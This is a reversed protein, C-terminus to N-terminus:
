HESPKWHRHRDEIRDASSKESDKVNKRRSGVAVEIKEYLFMFMKGKKVTCTKLVLIYTSTFAGELPSM